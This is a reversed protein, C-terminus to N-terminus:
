GEPGHAVHKTRVKATISADEEAHVDESVKNTKSGASVAPQNM